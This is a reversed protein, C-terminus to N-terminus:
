HSGHRLSSQVWPGRQVDIEEKEQKLFRETDPKESPPPSWDIPKSVILFFFFFCSLFKLKELDSNGQLEDAASIYTVQTLTLFKCGDGRVNKGLIQLVM